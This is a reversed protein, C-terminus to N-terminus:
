EDDEMSKYNAAGGLDLLSKKEGFSAKHSNKAQHRTGLKSVFADNEAGRTGLKESETADFIDEFDRDPDKNSLPTLSKGDGRAVSITTSKKTVLLIPSADLNCSPWFTSDPCTETKEMVIKDDTDESDVTATIDDLTEVARLSPNLSLVNVTGAHCTSQSSHTSSNCETPYSTSLTLSV